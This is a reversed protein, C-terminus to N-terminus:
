SSGTSISAVPALYVIEKWSQPDAEYGERELRRLEQFSSSKAKVEAWAQTFAPLSLNTKIGECWRKWVVPSIRNYQRLIVQENSLDIYHFLEDFANLYELDSLKGGLLAKTPLRGTLERYEKALSDEFQLQAIQKATHLQKYAFLVGGAAVITALASVSSAVASIWNSAESM